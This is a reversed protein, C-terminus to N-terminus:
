ACQSYFQVKYLFFTVSAVGAAPLAYNSIDINPFTFGQDADGVDANTDGVRTHTDGVGDNKDEDDSFGNTFFVKSLINDRYDAHNPNLNMHLPPNDIEGDVVADDLDLDDEVPHEEGLGREEDAGYSNFMIRFQNCYENQWNNGKPCENLLYTYANSARQTCEASGNPCNPVSKGRQRCKDGYYYKYDYLEKMREFNATDIDPYKINCVPTNNCRKLIGYIQQMTQSFSSSTSEDKSILDGLWYYFLDCYLSQVSKTRIYLWANLIKNVKAQHDKHTWGADQLAKIIEHYINDCGGSWPAGKLENYM